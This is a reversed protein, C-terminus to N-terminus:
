VHARGIKGKLYAETKERLITQDHDSLDETIERKSKQDSSSPAIEEGLLRRIKRRNGELVIFERYGSALSSWFASVGAETELPKIGLAKVMFEQTSEDIRMGGDRWLPWNIAVSKGSRYGKDRLQERHQAYRDMYGNGYAYDSQGPNGVVSAMSSFLVFFDLGEAKTTEDINETGKVKPCLVEEMEEKTKKLIFSDRIVGASHIVGNIAGYKGKIEEVLRETDRLDTIDGRLYVVETGEINLGDIKLKKESSLESRGSLVVKARKGSKAIHEAFILGLGGAGGTIWYVGGERIDIEKDKIDAAPVEKFRRVYRKGERYRVEIDASSTRLEQLIIETIQNNIGQKSQEQIDLTKYIYSPRELRVTKAFGGVGGLELSNNSTAERKGAEKGKDRVSDNGKEKGSDDIHVYLLRVGSQPLEQMLAQSLYTLSELIGASSGCEAKDWGYVVGLEGAIGRAKLDKGLKHYDELTSSNIEYIDGGLEKYTDGPYVTIVRGAAKVISQHEVILSSLSDLYTSSAKKKNSNDPNHSDNSFILVTDIEKSAERIEVQEELELALLKEQWDGTYFCCNLREDRFRKDGELINRQIEKIKRFGEELSIEHM